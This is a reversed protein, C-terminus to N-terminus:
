TRATVCTPNVFKSSTGQPATASLDWDTVVEASTEEGLLITRLQAIGRSLRSKVTGVPIKLVTAIEDYSLDDLYFLAVAAQYVEDVKALAPLVQSADIHNTLSPSEAPPLELAITALDHHPFRIKKKRLNVFARHLTTFLWTKAKSSDRLQHGKTAWIYFTQQTLDEADAQSRTLSMAFRFLVEYHQSVIAEFQDPSNM